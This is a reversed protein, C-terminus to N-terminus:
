RDPTVNLIGCIYFPVNLPLLRRSGNHLRGAPLVRQSSSQESPPLEAWLQSISKTLKPHLHNPLMDLVPKVVFAREHMREHPVVLPYKSDSSSGMKICESGYFVIDLDIVRPGNQFTERRGVTTEIKKLESILQIASLKTQLLCAANLFSPQDIFYMPKSEYLFSTDLLTGLKSLHLLSDQFIQVSDGVNSGLAIVVNVNSTAQNSSYQRRFYFGSRVLLGKHFRRM